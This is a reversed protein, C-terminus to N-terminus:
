GDNLVDVLQRLRSYSVRDFHFYIRALKPDKVNDGAAAGVRHFSGSKLIDRFDRNIRRMVPSSMKNNLRILYGKKFFRSSHYNSYFHTLEGVAGKVDQFHRILSLDGKSVLGTHKMNKKMLKMVSSWYSSGRSDAMVIPRPKAKGTQVLTCSEFAEDWTGFGGPFLVTADSEMLFLLKRTFFYKFFILKRNGRIVEAADQEFPLMINLGFSNKAGAGVIAAEMIGSAGGTIVMWGEKAIKRGFERAMKYDPHGPKTRASGFVAVKKINRYKQFVKFAYRLEGFAKQLLRLEMLDLNDSKLKGVTKLMDLCVREEQTGKSSMSILDKIIKIM